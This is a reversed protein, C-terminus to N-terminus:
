LEVNRNKIVNGNNDIIQEHPLSTFLEQAHVSRLSYRIPLEGIVNGQIKPDSILSLDGIIINYPNLLFNDLITVLNESNQKKSFKTLQLGTM